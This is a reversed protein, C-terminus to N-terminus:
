SENKEGNNKFQYSKNAEDWYCVACCHESWLQESMIIDGNPDDLIQKAEFAIKGAEKRPVFRDKNTIFGQTSGKKCSGYPSKRICNAHDRDFIIEGDLRKIAAARILEKM